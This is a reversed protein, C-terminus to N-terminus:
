HTLFPSKSFYMYYVQLKRFPYFTAKLSLPKMCVSVDPREEPEKIDSSRTRNSNTVNEFTYADHDYIFLDTYVM